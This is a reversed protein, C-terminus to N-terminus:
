IHILSLGGGSDDFDPLQFENESLLQGAEHAGGTIHSGSRSVAGSPGRVASLSQDRALSWGGDNM